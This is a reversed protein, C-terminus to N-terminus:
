QRSWLLAHTGHDTQATGVLVGTNTISLPRCYHHDFYPLWTVTGSSRRLWPRDFGQVTLSGVVDGEDNMATAYWGDPTGLREWPDGGFSHCAIPQGSQNRANGLILGESTLCVPYIGDPEDGSVFSKTGAVPDWLLAKCTGGFMGGTDGVALVTGADNVDVAQGWACDFDTLFVGERWPIWAAPGYHLQGRDQPDVSLSVWGVVVGADNIAFAGSDIGQFTGLDEPPGHSSWRVAHVSGNTM